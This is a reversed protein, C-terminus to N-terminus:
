YNKRAAKNGANINIYTQILAKRIYQVKLVGNLLDPGFEIPKDVPKEGSKDETTFGKLNRLVHRLVGADISEASSELSQTLDDYKDQSLLLFDATVQHTQVNGGDIPKSIVVPVDKVVREENVDDMKFSM